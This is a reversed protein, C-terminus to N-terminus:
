ELVVYCAASTLVSASKCIEFSSSQVNVVCELILSLFETTDTLLSSDPTATHLSRVCYLQPTAIVLVISTM